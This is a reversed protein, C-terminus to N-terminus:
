EERDLQVIFWDLLQSSLRVTSHRLTRVTAEADERTLQATHYAALLIGLTGQVPVGLAQAVRRGLKEDILVWDAQLEQALLITDLEGPDLGLLAPPLASQAHPIRVQIWDARELENAGPKGQGQMVTEQYVSDAVIVEDFMTRLLDLRGVISLAILPTSNVIVRSM